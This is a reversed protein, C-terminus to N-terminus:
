HLGIGGAYFPVLFNYFLHIPKTFIHDLEAKTIGQIVIRLVIDM